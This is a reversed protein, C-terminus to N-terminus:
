AIRVARFYGSASLFANSGVADSQGILYINQVITNVFPYAMTNVANNSGTVMVDQSFCGTTLSNTVTSFGIITYLGTGGRGCSGAIIWVGIPLSSITYVTIPTNPTYTVTAPITADIVQGIKDTGTGTASYVTAYNPTLPCGLSITSTASGLFITGTSGAGDLIRVNNASTAGNGIHIGGSSTNDDGDGLHLIVNRSASTAIEVNTGAAANGILLTGTPTTPNITNSTMGVSFIQTGLWTNITALFVNITNQVFGTTAVQTTNTGNALTPATPAVPFTINQNQAIPFTIYETDLIAREEASLTPVDWSSPNYNPLIPDPQQEASM